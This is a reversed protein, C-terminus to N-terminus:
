SAKREDAEPPAPGRVLEPHGLERLAAEIREVTSETQTAGAEYRDLSRVCCGAKVAARLKVRSPIPSTVTRRPM